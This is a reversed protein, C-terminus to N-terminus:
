LITWSVSAGISTSAWQFNNLSLEVYPSLSVVKSFEFTFGPYALLEFTNSAKNLITYRPYFGLDLKLQNLISYSHGLYAAVRVQKQKVASVTNLYYTPILIYQLELNGIAQEFYLRTVVTGAIQAAKSAESLPAGLRIDGHIKRGAAEFIAPYQIRLYSDALTNLPANTGFNSDFALVPGAKWGSGLAVSSILYHNISTGAAAALTPGNMYNFYSLSLPKAASPATATVSPTAASPLATTSTDGYGMSATLSLVALAFGQVSRKQQSM